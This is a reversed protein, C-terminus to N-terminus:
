AWDSPEAVGDNYESEDIKQFYYKTKNSDEAVLFMRNSNDGAEEIRIVKLISM